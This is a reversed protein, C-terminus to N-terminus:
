IMSAIQRLNNRIPEGLELFAYRVADIGHNYKDIPIGAKKDSWCYNKFEKKINHSEPTIVIQYELM